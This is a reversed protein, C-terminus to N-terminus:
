YSRRRRLYTGLGLLGTGFLLALTGPEPTPTILVDVSQAAGSVNLYIAFGTDTGTPTGLQAQVALPLVPWVAHFGFTTTTSGSLATFSLINGLLVQTPDTVGTISINPFPASTDFALSFVDTAPYPGNNNFVTIGTSSYNGGSSVVTGTCTAPTCSFDVNAAQVLPVFLLLASLTLLWPRKLVTRM